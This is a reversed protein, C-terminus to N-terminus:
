TPADVLAEAREFRDAALAYRGQKQAEYGEHALARATARDADSKSAQASAWRPASVTSTAVLFVGLVLRVLSVLRM